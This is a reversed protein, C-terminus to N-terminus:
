KAGVGPMKCPFAKTMADMVLHFRREHLREPHDEFFKMMIRVGQTDDVGSPICLKGCFSLADTIGHLYGACFGANAGHIRGTADMEELAERCDAQLSNADHREADAEPLLFFAIVLFALPANM